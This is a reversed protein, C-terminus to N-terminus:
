IDVKFRLELRKFERFVEFGFRRYFDLNQEDAWNFWARNL